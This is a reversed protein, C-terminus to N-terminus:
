SVFIGSFQIEVRFILPTLHCHVTGTMCILVRLVRRSKQTMRIFPDKFVLSIYIVMATLNLLNGFHSVVRWKHISYWITGQFFDGGNLFITNAEKQRIARSQHVLRPYGGFCKGQAAEADTCTGGYKNAEEFRCHVDNTHLITVDLASVAYMLTVMYLRIMECSNFLTFKNEIPFNKESFIVASVSLLHNSIVALVDSPITFAEIGCM